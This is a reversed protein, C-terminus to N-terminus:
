SAIKEDREFANHSPCILEPFAEQIVTIVKQPDDKLLSRIEAKIFTLSKEVKGCKQPIGLPKCLKRSQRKNLNNVITETKSHLSEYKEYEFINEKQVEPITPEFSTNENEVIINLEKSNEMLQEDFLIKDIDAISNSYSLTEPIESNATRRTQPDYILVFIACSYFAFLFIPLLFENITAYM